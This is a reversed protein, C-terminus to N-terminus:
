KVKVKKAACYKGYHKTGDVIKYARIKFYYTKDKKLNAKTYQIKSDSKFTKILKYGSSKKTSMIIEYGNAGSIKKWTLKVKNANSSVTVKPVSPKTVEPEKVPETTPEVTPKITPEIAPEVSPTPTVTVTPTDTPQSPAPPNIVIPTDTPKPSATPSPTVVENIQFTKSISGTYDNAGEVTVTAQGAETNNQYTVQYCTDYLIFDGKKIIVKPCKATGDYNCSDYELVISYDTIDKTVKQSLWLQNDNTIASAQVLVYQKEATSYPAKNSNLSLYMNSLCNKFAISDGKDEVTWRQAQNSLDKEALVIESNEKSDQVSFVKTSYCNRLVYTGDEQKEPIWKQNTENTNDWFVVKAGDTISGGWVGIVKKNAKNVIYQAEDLNEAKLDATVDLSKIYVYGDKGGGGFASTSGAILLEGSSLQFFCRNFGTPAGSNYMVWEGTADKESNILIGTDGTMAAVRGDALTIVYPSGGRWLAKGIDNSDWNLPDDSLKYFSTLPNSIGVGEYVMMWKGNELQTVVPMGPRKNDGPLYLDDVLESWNVGDTTVTHVLKQSNAYDEIREDSYYCVLQGKYWLLCPEWVPDYGMLNRGGKAITSIYKWTKGKDLSYYLDMSTKWLGGDGADSVRTADKEITVANGACILTGAPLDGMKEPLILIQPCNHIQWQYLKADPDTQAVAEGTKSSLWEDPHISDDNQIEGVKDWNKGKNYSVYIPFVFEGCTGREGSEFTCYLEGNAGEAVRPSLCQNRGPYDNSPKCVYWDPLNNTSELSWIQGNDEENLEAQIIDVRWGDKMSSEPEKEMYLGTGANKFRYKQDQGSVPEIIWNQTADTDSKNQQELLVNARDGEKRVGLVLDSNVNHLWYSGDSKQEFRWWHDSKVELAWAIAGNGVGLGGNHNEDIVLKKDSGDCNGVYYTGPYPNDKVEGAAVKTGGFIMVFILLISICKKVALKYM